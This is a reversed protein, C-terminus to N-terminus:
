LQGAIGARRRLMAESAYFASLDAGWDPLQATFLASNGRHNTALHYGRQLFLAPWYDSLAPSVRGGCSGRFGARGDMAREYGAQLVDAPGGARDTGGGASDM